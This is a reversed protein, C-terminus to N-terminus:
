TVSRQVSADVADLIHKRSLGVRNVMFGDNLMAMQYDLKGYQLIDDDVGYFCKTLIVLRERKLGYEKIARGITTESRGLAYFDATDWTNIGVDYAHKLLPLADEPDLHWPEMASNGYGMAGLIVKSIKLGSNGLTTYQMPVTSNGSEEQQRLWDSLASPPMTSLTPTNFSLKVQLLLNNIFPRFPHISINV